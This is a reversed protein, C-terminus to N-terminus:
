KKRKQTDTPRADEAGARGVMTEQGAAPGKLGQGDVEALPTAGLLWQRVATATRALAEPGKPRMACEWVVLVRWGSERLSAIARADRRRNDAFKTEWFERRTAPTTSYRCGHAHWYCGHVFVAARYKPFTLDPRGALHRDHLRYRLGMAHLAKRLSTEPKTDRQPVSAMIRRRTEADVIDM